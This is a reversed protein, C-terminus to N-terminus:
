KANTQDRPAGPRTVAHGALRWFGYAGVLFAIGLAFEIAADIFVNEEMDLVDAYFGSVLGGALTFLIAGLMLGSGPIGRARVLRICAALVVIFGIVSLAGGAIQLAVVSLNM